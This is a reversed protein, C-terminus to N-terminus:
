ILWVKELRRLVRSPVRYLGHDGYAHSILIYPRELSPVRHLGHHGYSHSVLVYLRELSPIRHLGHHGYAHGVLVNCVELGFASAFFHGPRGPNTEQWPFCESLERVTGIYCKEFFVNQM